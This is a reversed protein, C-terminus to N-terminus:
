AGGNGNVPYGAAGDFHNFYRAIVDLLPHDRLATARQSEKQTITTAYLLDSAPLRNDSTKKFVPRPLYLNNGRSSDFWMETNRVNEPLLMSYDEIFEPHEVFVHKVLLEMFPIIAGLVYETELVENDKRTPAEIAETYLTHEVDFEKKCSCFGRAKPSEATMGWDSAEKTVWEVGLIPISTDIARITSM